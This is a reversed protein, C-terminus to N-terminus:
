YIDTYEDLFWRIAYGLIFAAVCSGILMGFIYLTM